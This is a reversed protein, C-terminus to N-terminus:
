SSIEASWTRIDQATFRVGPLVERLRHTLKAEVAFLPMGNVDARIDVLALDLRDLLGSLLADADRGSPTAERRAEDLAPRDEASAPPAKRPGSTTVGLWAMADFMTTFFKTPCAPSHRALYLDVIVRDVASTGVVAIRTFPWAQAFVKRAKHEVGEMCNMTVLMPRPRDPCLASAKTMVAHADSEVVFAGSTWRLYVLGGSLEVAGKASELHQHTVLGGLVTPGRTVGTASCQASRQPPWGHPLAPSHNDKVGELVVHYPM